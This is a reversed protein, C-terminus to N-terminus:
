LLEITVRAGDAAILTLAVMVTQLPTMAMVLRQGNYLM